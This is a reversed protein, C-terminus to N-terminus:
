VPSFTGVSVEVAGSWNQYAFFGNGFPLGGTQDFIRVHPGGGGGPGTVIEPTPSQDLNGTAVFVGGTYGPDYAFWGAQAVGQANFVRVHPGGGAGAGTVIRGASAAVSVGGTFGPYAFFENAVAWANTSNLTWVRVHSGAGPGPATVIDDKADGTENAVAVRIGNSVNSAYAFFGGNSIDVVNPNAGGQNVHWVKVHPGGGAGAGTVIEDGNATNGDINGAAVYVGGGFTSDYAQFSALKDGTINFIGVLPLLHTTATNFSGLGVIIEKVGDAGPTGDAKFIDGRAVHVGGGQTGFAFFSGLEAGTAGLTKVHPGGGPGVGTTIQGLDDNKITEDQTETGIRANRPNSLTVRFTEDPEQARDGVITIPITKSSQGTAFTATGKAATYDGQTEGTTAVATVDSTAYDVTTIQPAAASLTLTVNMTTTATDGEPQSVPEGFAITLAPGDDNTLTIEKDAGGALTANQNGGFIVKFAEDPEPFTDGKITIPIDQSGNGNFTLTGSKPQYDVAGLAPDSTASGDQTTYNLRVQAGAYGSVTVRVSRVNDAQGEPASQNSGPAMAVAIAAPTGADNSTITVLGESGRSAGTPESAFVVKFTESPEVLGDNIIPVDFNQSASQGCSNWTLTQQTETYDEGPTATNALTKVTAQITDCLSGIPSLTVSVHAVGANEAVTVSGINVTHIGNVAAAKPAFPVAILFVAAVFTSLAAAFLRLSTRM